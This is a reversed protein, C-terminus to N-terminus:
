KGLKNARLYAAKVAENVIKKMQNNKKFVNIAAETTGGKIAINKALEEANKSSSFLLQISGLATNTVLYRAIKSSFGLNQAAIEFLHIFLFIYGPGSGSIATIKDLENENKLIIVKGVNLFLSNAIQINKKSVFKNKVMCSVSMNISAPMNPM